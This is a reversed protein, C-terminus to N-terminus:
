QENGGGKVEKTLSPVRIDINRSPLRILYENTLRQLESVYKVYQSGSINFERSKIRALYLVAPIICEHFEIPILPEDTTDYLEYDPWQSVYLNLNHAGAPIPEIVVNTGWQFYYQPTVVGHLEIHGLREPTIRQLGAPRVTGGALYEVYVVRHGTFPVLRSGSTTTVSQVAEYCLTKAAIDRQVDNIWANIEADTWQAATAEDLLNRIVALINSFDPWAM